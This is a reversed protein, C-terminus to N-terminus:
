VTVVRVEAVGDLLRQVSATLFQELPIGTDRSAQENLERVLKTLALDTLPQAIGGAGYGDFLLATLLAIRHGPRLTSMYATLQQRQSAFELPDINALASAEDTIESSVRNLKSILDNFPDAPKSSLKSFLEDGLVRRMTEDSARATNHDSM